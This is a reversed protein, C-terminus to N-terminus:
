AWAALWDRMAAYTADTLHVYSRRRDREDARREILNREELMGLWRLATTPPVNAAICASSISVRRGLERASFLDLLIDWAPDAFLDSNAGFTASRAQRARYISLAKSAPPRDTPSAIGRRGGARYRAVLDELEALVDAIIEAPDDSAEAV